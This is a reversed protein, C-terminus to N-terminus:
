SNRKTILHKRTSIELLETIVDRSTFLCLPTTSIVGELNSVEVKVQMFSLM